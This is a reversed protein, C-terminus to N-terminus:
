ALCKELICQTEYPKGSLAHTSFTKGFFAFCNSLFMIKKKVKIVNKASKHNFNALFEVDPLFLYIFLLSFCSFVFLCFVSM